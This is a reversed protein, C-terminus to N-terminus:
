GRARGGAFSPDLLDFGPAAWAVWRAPNVVGEARLTAEAERVLRAGEDGGLLEGKRWKAAARRALGEMGPAKEVAAEYRDLSALADARDGRAAAVCARFLRRVPVWPIAGFFNKVEITAAEVRADYGDRERAAILAAILQLGLFAARQRVNYSSKDALLTGTESEIRRQAQNGGRYADIAVLSLFTTVRMFEDDDRSWISLGYEVEVQARDPSDRALWYDNSSIRFVAMAARDHREDADRVWGPYRRVFAGADGGFGYTSALAVLLGLGPARCALMLNEANELAAAAGPDFRQFLLSGRASAIEAAGRPSRLREQISKALALKAEAADPKLIAYNGTAYWCLASLIRSPEGADLATILFRASHPAFRERMLVLDVHRLVGRPLDQEARWEFDLGRVELQADLRVYEEYAEQPNVARAPPEIGAERLQGRMIENCRDVHGSYGFGDAARRRLEWAADQDALNAADLFAEAAEAGRRANVLANGLQEFLGARATGEAGGHELAIRYLRAARDFALAENAQEAERVAVDAGRQKEGAGVLHEALAALDPADSAELARALRRHCDARREPALAGAVAERVRDHYAEFLDRSGASRLFRGARLAALSLDLSEAADTTEALLGYALPRAAVAVVELVERAADPLKAIRGELADALSPPMSSPSGARRAEAHRALESVFFPSGGAEREIAELDAEAAGGALARVLAHVEAAGLPELVIERREAGVDEWRREFLWKLAPSREVEDGRYSCVVLLAPPYPESLIEILLRMGDIDGWQLDDIAITLPATEVIRQCLDKFAVLARNQVEQPDPPLEARQKASSIANVRRLVPFVKLLCHLNRPVLRAAEVDPLRRLYRSLADVVGDFAKYPVSEGEYCRGRLVVADARGAQETLFRDVLTTKGMGSVGSVLALVPRGADAAKAAERLAELELERGIFPGAAQPALSTAAAAARAGLAALVEEGRARLAPERHLLRMCLAELEAPVGTVRESPPVPDETQKQAIVWMLGGEFPLKGTLAEYLMAGVAYWDTPEATPAGASQEPSMYAPTGMVGEEITRQLEDQKREGVLGFDLIVARAERTVLVNSPKLDRHLKGARHLATIGEALQAFADRLRAEDRMPTPPLALPAARRTEALAEASPPPRTSRGHGWVHALFDRGEVREMTFFWADGEAFLEHLVVLNPHSLDALSRFEQKFRYIGAADADRLTKLAVEGGREKDRALWVQGMAGRGLMRVVEFRGGGLM